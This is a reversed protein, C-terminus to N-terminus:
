VRNQDNPCQAMGQATLELRPSSLTKKPGLCMIWVKNM